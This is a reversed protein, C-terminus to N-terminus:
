SRVTRYTPQLQLKTYEVPVQQKGTQRGLEAYQRAMPQDQLLGECLREAAELQVNIPVEAATLETYVAPVKSQGTQRRTEEYQREAPSSETSSNRCGAYCIRHLSCILDGIFSYIM